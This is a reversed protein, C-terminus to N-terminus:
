SRVIWVANLPLTEVGYDAAVPPTSKVVAITPGVLAGTMTDGPVNVYRADLGSLRSDLDNLADVIQGEVAALSPNTRPDNPNAKVIDYSM